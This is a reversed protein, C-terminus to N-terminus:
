IESEFGRLDFATARLHETFFASKSIESFKSYFLPEPVPKHVQSNELFVKIISCRQHSSKISAQSSLQVKSRGCKENSSQQVMILIWAHQLIFTRKFNNKLFERWFIDHLGIIAHFIFGKEVVTKVMEGFMAMKWNGFFIKDECGKWCHDKLWFKGLWQTNWLWITHNLFNEM